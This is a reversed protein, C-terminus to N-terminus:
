YATQRHRSQRLRRPARDQFAHHPTLSSDGVQGPRKRDQEIRFTTDKGAANQVILAPAKEEAACLVHMAGVILIALVSLCRVM